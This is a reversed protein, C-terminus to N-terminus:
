GGWGLGDREVEDECMEQLSLDLGDEDMAEGVGGHRELVDELVAEVVPDEGTHKESPEDVRGRCWLM